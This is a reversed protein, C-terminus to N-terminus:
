AVSAAAEWLARGEAMLLLRSPPAIPTDYTVATM